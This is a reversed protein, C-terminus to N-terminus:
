LDFESKWRSYEKFLTWMKTYSPPEMDGYLPVARAVDQPTAVLGNCDLDYLRYFIGSDYISSKTPNTQTAGEKLAADLKRHYSALFSRPLAERFGRYLKSGDIRKLITEYDTGGPHIYRIEEATEAFRIAQFAERYILFEGGRFHILMNELDVDGSEVDFIDNGKIGIYNLWLIARYIADMSGNEVPEFVANLFRQFDTPNRFFCLRVSVTTKQRKVSFIASTTDEVGNIRCWDVYKRLLPLVHNNFPEVRGHIASGFLRDLEKEDMQCIDKGLESEYPESRKFFARVRSVISIDLLSLEEAIFQRKRNEQYM